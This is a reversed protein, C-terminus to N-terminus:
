CRGVGVTQNQQHLAQGGPHLQARGGAELLSFLGGGTKCGLLLRIQLKRGSGLPTSRRRLEIWSFPHPRHATGVYVWNQINFKWGQDSVKTKAEDKERGDM